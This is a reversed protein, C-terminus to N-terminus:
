NIFIDFLKVCIYNSYCLSHANKGSGLHWLYVPIKLSALQPIRWNQFCHLDILFKQKSVSLSSSIYACLDLRKLKLFNFKWFIAMNVLYYVSIFLLAYLCTVLNSNLSKSASRPDPKLFQSNETRQKRIQLLTM